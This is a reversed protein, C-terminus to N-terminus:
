HFMPMHQHITLDFWAGPAARLLAELQGINLDYSATVRELGYRRLFHGATWPNAVNLSFDGRKRDGASFALPDHNRVLYGDAQSSRVQQLIWEEGPKFIRPPAVWISSSDSKGAQVQLERFRAVADRYRKPNEFECYITRVGSSWAAELQGPDRIVAIIEA